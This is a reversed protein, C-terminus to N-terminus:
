FVPKTYPSELREDGEHGLTEFDSTSPFRFFFSEQPPLKEWHKKPPPHEDIAVDKVLHYHNLKATSFSDLEYFMKGYRNQHM